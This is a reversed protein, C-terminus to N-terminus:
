KELGLAEVFGRHREQAPSSTMLGQIEVITGGDPLLLKIQDGVARGIQHNDGGVFVSFDDTGLERDIIVVHVGKKLAEKCPEKLALSEKPSALIADYGKDPQSKVTITPM